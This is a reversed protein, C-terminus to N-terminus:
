DVGIREIPRDELTEHSYRFFCEGCCASKRNIEIGRSLRTHAKSASTESYQVRRPSATCNCRKDLNTQAIQAPKGWTMPGTQKKAERNDVIAVVIDVPMTNEHAYECEDDQKQEEILKELESDM